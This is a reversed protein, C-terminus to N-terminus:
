FKFKAEFSPGAYSPGNLGEAYVGASFDLSFFRGHIGFTGLFLHGELRPAGSPIEGSSIGKGEYQIPVAVAIGAEKLLSLSFIDLRKSAWRGGVAVSGRLAQSESHVGPTGSYRNRQYGIGVDMYGDFASLAHPRLSMGADVGYPDEFTFGPRQSSVYGANQTINIFAGVPRKAVPSGETAM